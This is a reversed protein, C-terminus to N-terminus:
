KRNVSWIGIIILLVGIINNVTVTEQFYISSWLMAWLLQMGKNLYATSLEITKLIRQWLVAYVTLASIMFIVSIVLRASIIGENKLYQSAIKSIVSVISYIFVIGQIKIIQMAKFNMKVKM